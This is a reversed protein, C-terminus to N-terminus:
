VIPNRNPLCAPCSIGLGLAANYISDVTSEARDGPATV